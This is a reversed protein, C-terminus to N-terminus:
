LMASMISEIQELEDTSINSLHSNVTKINGERNDLEKSVHKITIKDDLLQKALYILKDNNKQRSVLFVVKNKRDISYNFTKCHSIYANGGCHQNGTVISVHSDSIFLKPLMYFEEETVRKHTAKYKGNKYAQYISYHESEKQVMAKEHEHNYIITM